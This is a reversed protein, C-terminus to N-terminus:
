DKVPMYAAGLLVIASMYSLLTVGWLGRKREEFYDIRDQDAKYAQFNQTLQVENASPFNVLFREGGLTVNAGQELDVTNDTPSSWSLTVESPTVRSVTADDNGEYPFTDGESITATEPAPLYEDLAPGLTGNSEWVVYKIGGQTAPQDEVDPDNVLVATTNVYGRLTFESVDSGNEIVVQWTENQYTANTGNALTATSVASENTWAIEGTIVTGGGEGSAEEESLASVTYEQGGQQFTDNVGYTEGEIAVQPRQADVVTIYGYAGTGIVLFFVFYIAAARRQM